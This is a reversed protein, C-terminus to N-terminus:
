SASDGPDFLLTTQVGGGPTVWDIRWGGPLRRARFPGDLPPEAPGIMADIRRGPQRGDIEFNHLGAALPEDLPQSFRADVGAAFRARRVGDVSLVLTSGPPGDGSVVVGGKRDFDVASLRPSAGGTELAMAGAGARLQAARGTPTVALYGESQIDRGAELMSLGFLRLETSGSLALRWNGKASVGAFVAEGNPTALRIRAGPQAMGTLSIRGGGLRAISLAFPPARYAGAVSDSQPAAAGRGPGGQRADCATLGIVLGVAALWLGHNNQKAGDPIPRVRRTM